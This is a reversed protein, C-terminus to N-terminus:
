SYAGNDGKKCCGEKVLGMLHMNAARPKLGLKEAIEKSNLPAENVWLLELINTKTESKKEM